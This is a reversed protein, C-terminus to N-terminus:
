GSDFRRTLQRLVDELERYEQRHAAALSRLVKEGEPTIVVHVRRNDVTSSMRRIYGGKDMRDVLGVASHHKIQLAEAIEGITPPEPGAHGRVAVLLQHQQPSLGASRAAEESFHLFRRLAARFAALAQYDDNTLPADQM